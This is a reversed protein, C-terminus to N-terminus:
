RLHRCADAGERLASYHYVSGDAHHVECWTKGGMEHHYEITQKPTSLPVQISGVCGALLLGACLLWLAKLDVM